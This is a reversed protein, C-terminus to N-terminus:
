YKLEITTINNEAKEKARVYNKYSFITGCLVLLFMLVSVTYLVTNFILAKKKQAKEICEIRENFEKEVQENIDNM